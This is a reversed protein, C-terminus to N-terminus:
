SWAPRKLVATAVRGARVTAAATGESPPVGATIQYPDVRIRYQWTM